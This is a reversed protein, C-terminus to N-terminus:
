KDVWKRLAQGKRQAVADYVKLVVGFLIAGAVIAGLFLYNKV